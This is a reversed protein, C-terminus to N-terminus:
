AASLASRHRGPNKSSATESRKARQADERVTPPPAVINAQGSGRCAARRHPLPVSPPPPGNASGLSKPTLTQLPGIHPHGPQDTRGPRPDFPHEDALEKARIYNTGTTPLRRKPQPRTM